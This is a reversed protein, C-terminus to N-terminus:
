NLEWVPQNTRSKTRISVGQEGLVLTSMRCDWVSLCLTCLWTCLLHDTFIQILPYIYLYSQVAPLFCVSLELLCAMLLYSKKQEIGTQWPFFLFYLGWHKAIEDNM